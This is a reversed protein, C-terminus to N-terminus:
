CLTLGHFTTLKVHVHVHMIVQLTTRVKVHWSGMIFVKLRRGAVIVKNAGSLPARATCITQSGIGDLGDSM